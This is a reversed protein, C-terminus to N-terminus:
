ENEKNRKSIEKRQKKEDDCEETNKSKTFIQNKTKEDQIIIKEFTFMAIIAAFNTKLKNLNNKQANM